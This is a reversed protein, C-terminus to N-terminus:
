QGVFVPKKKNRFANVGEQHDQTQQLITQAFREEQLTQELTLQGASNIISKSMINAYFPGSAIREAKEMVKDHLTESPLIDNVIRYEKAEEAPITAATVIWEKAKYPGVLQTLYYHLGCDPVLGIKNFALGFKAKTSAYVIDAALALSFGAGVAYGDVEAIVIKEMNHIAKVVAGFKDMHDYTQLVTRSGMGSVSSGTSFNGEAGKLVVVKVEPSQECAQLFELLQARMEVTIANLQKPNHVTLQAINNNVEYKICAEM